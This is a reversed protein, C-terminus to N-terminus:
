RRKPRLVLKPSVNGAADTAVLTVRFRGRTPLKSLRVRNAGSAAAASKTRVTKWGRGARRQTVIRVKAAESLSFAVTPVRRRM